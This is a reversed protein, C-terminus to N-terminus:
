LDVAIRFSVSHVAQIPEYAARNACRAAFEGRAIWSGGRIVKRRGEDPGLPNEAPSYKYTEMHFWDSCWDYANGAMDYCGYPSVGSPYSGVPMLCKNQSESTNARSADWTDGWPYEWGDTGRAAREWEAETPLRYEAKELSNLWELFNTADYWSVGVVPHDLANFREDSWFPPHLHGTAEVFQAYQSNTVHYMGIAYVDLLVSRQPEEPDTKRLGTPVTGMTFEGAPIHILPYNLTEIHM